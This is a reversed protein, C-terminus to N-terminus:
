ESELGGAVKKCVSMAFAETGVGADPSAMSDVGSPLLRYMFAESPVVVIIPGGVFVLGESWLTSAQDISGAAMGSFEVANVAPASFKTFSCSGLKVEILVTNTVTAVAPAVRVLTPNASYLAAPAKIVEETFVLPAVAVAKWDVPTLVTVKVVGCIM